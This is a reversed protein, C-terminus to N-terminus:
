YGYKSTNQGSKHKCAASCLYIKNGNIESIYKTTKENINMNCVLDKAVDLINIFVYKIIPSICIYFIIRYSNKLMLCKM